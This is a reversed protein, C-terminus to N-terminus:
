LKRALYEKDPLVHSKYYGITTLALPTSILGIAVIFPKFLPIRETRRVVWFIIAQGLILLIPFDM